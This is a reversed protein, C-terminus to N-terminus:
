LKFLNLGTIKDKERKLAIDYTKMIIECSIVEGEELHGGITSYDRRGLCVHAHIVKSENMTSVNGLMSIIELSENFRKSLYKKNKLDYFAINAWNLSGIGYFVAFNINNKQAFDKLSQILSEKFEIKILFSHDNLKLFKM